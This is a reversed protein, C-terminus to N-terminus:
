KGTVAGFMARHKRWREQQALSRMAREEPSQIRSPTLLRRRKWAEKLALRHAESKPKGTIAARMNAVHEPTQKKGLKAARQKSRTEESRTKGRNATGIKACVEPPRKRGRLASATKEIQEPTHKSGLHINRLLEIQWRPLKRGRNAASLKARTAENPIYGPVGDGGDSINTCNPNILRLSAIWFRERAAWDGTPPVTEMLAIRVHGECISMMVSNKRHPWKSVDAFHRALRYELKRISKGCYFPYGTDWGLAITEPRMDFLWYIYTTKSNPRRSM